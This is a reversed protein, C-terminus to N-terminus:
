KIQKEWVVKKTSLYSFILTYHNTDKSHLLPMKNDSFFFYLFYLNNYCFQMAFKEKNLNLIVKNSNGPAYIKVCIRFAPM